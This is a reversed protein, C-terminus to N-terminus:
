DREHPFDHPAQENMLCKGYCYPPPKTLPHTNQSKLGETPEWQAKMAVHLNPSNENPKLFLNRGPLLMDPFFSWPLM